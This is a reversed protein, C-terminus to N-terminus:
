SKIKSLLFDKLNDKIDEEGSVIINLIYDKYYESEKFQKRIAKIEDQTINKEINITIIRKDM